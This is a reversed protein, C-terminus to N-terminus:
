RSLTKKLELLKKRLLDIQKVAVDRGVTVSLECGDIGEGINVNSVASRLTGIAIGISGLLEHRQKAIDNIM